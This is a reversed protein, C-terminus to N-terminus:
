NFSLIAEIQAIALGTVQAIQELGMDTQALNQVIQQIQAQAQAAEAQAQAAEAQAQAAEVQAQAAEVQAQAAEAQAQTAEAQAQTAEAQAQAALEERNPLLAGNRYAWRLWTCEVGCYAGQWRVLALDLVQSILQAQDNPLIEVYSGGQLQFGAWDAPDFPDYWFYETVHMWNQYIQKKQTKDKEATSESLLEIVVDPPKGEEWCVWSKREKKPVNLAVFVDPGRYDENKVQNLSYYVFMNGGVYGDPRQDLWPYLTDM